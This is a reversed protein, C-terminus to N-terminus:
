PGGFVTAAAAVGLTAIKAFTSQKVPDVYQTYDLSARYINNDMGAVAGELTEGIQATQGILASNTARDQQEKAMADSLRMTENYAEVTSGGVGAAGAMASAAGAQEAAAIRQQFSGFTASDLSRSINETIAGINKGAADMARKNALSSSFQQLATEAGRRENGSKQTIRAADVKAKARIYQADGYLLNGM